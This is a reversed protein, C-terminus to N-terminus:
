SFRDTVSRQKRGLSSPLLLGVGVGGGGEGQRAADVLAHRAALLIPLCCCCLVLALLPATWRASEPPTLTPVSAEAVYHWPRQDLGCYAARCGAVSSLANSSRGQSGNCGAVVAEQFSRCDGLSANFADGGDCLSDVDCQTLRHVRFANYESGRPPTGRLAVHLSHDFPLQRRWREEAQAPLAALSSWGQSELVARLADREGGCCGLALVTDACGPSLANVTWAPVDQPLAGWHGAAAAGVSPVRCHDDFRRRVEAVTEEPYQALMAALLSAVAPAAQSTGSMRVDGGGLSASNVDIGPAMVDVLGFCSFTALRGVDDHAGVVLVDAGAQKYNPLGHARNDNGENCAAAVVSVSLQALATLAIAVAADPGSNPFCMSLNVVYREYRGSRGSVDDYVWELAAALQQTTIEHQANTVRLPVCVAAKAFAYSAGCAIGAVHTGHGNVDNGDDDSFGGVVRNSVGNGNFAPHDNTGSDVVYILSRPAFFRASADHPATPPLPALRRTPPPDGCWRAMSSVGGAAHTGEEVCSGLLGVPPRSAHRSCNAWAFADSTRRLAVGEYRYGGGLLERLTLVAPGDPTARWAWVVYPASRSVCRGRSSDRQPCLELGEGFARREERDLAHPPAAYAYGCARCPLVPASVYVNYRGGATGYFRPLSPKPAGRVCFREGGGGSTSDCVERYNCAAATWASAVRCARIGTCDADCNRLEDYRCLRWGAGRAACTSSAEDWSAGGYCVRGPGRAECRSTLRNRLVEDRCCVVQELGHERCRFTGNSLDAVKHACLLSGGCPAAAAAAVGCALLVCPSARM